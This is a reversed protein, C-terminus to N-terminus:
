WLCHQKGDINTFVEDMYWADDPLDRTALDLIKAGVALLKTSFFGQEAMLDM